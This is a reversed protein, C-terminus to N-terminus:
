RKRILRIVSYLNVRCSVHSWVPQAGAPVAALINSYNMCVVGPRVGPWVAKLAAGCSHCGVGRKGASCCPLGGLEERLCEDAAITELPLLSAFTKLGTDDVRCLVCTEDAPADNASSDEKCAEAM